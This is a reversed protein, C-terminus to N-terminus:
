DMSFSGMGTELDIYGKVKNSFTANVGLRKVIGVSGLAIFSFDVRSQNKGSEFNHWLGKQEYDYITVGKLNSKLVLATDNMVTVQIDLWALNFAWENLEAVKMSTGVESKESSAVRQENSRKSIGFLIGGLLVIGILLLATQLRKLKTTKMM